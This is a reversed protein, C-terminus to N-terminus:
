TRGASSSMRLDVDGARFKKVTDEPDESSSAAGLMYASQVGKLLHNLLHSLCVAIHRQEVFIIGRLRTASTRLIELLSVVKPTIWDLKPELLIASFIQLSSLISEEDDDDTNCESEFLPMIQSYLYYEAAFVGLSTLAVGYRRDIQKWTMESTALAAEIASSFM